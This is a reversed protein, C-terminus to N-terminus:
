QLKVTDLIGRWLQSRNTELIQLSNSSTTTLANATGLVVSSNISIPLYMNYALVVYM